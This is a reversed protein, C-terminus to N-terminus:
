AHPAGNQVPEAGSLESASQGKASQQVLHSGLALNWFHWWSIVFTTLMYHSNRNRCKIGLDSNSYIKVKGFCSLLCELTNNRNFDQWWLSIKGTSDKFFIESIAWTLDIILKCHFLEEISKSEGWKQKQYWVKYKM